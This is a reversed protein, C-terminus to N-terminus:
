KIKKIEKQIALRVIESATVQHMKALEELGLRDSPTLRVTMVENRPVAEKTTTYGTM